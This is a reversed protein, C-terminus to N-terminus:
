GEETDEEAEAEEGKEHEKMLEAIESLDFDGGFLGGGFKGLMEPNVDGVINVFVAEDSEAALVVLGQFAEENVRIFVNVTEDDEKVRVIRSWGDDTLRKSLAEFKAAVEEAGETIPFVNVRILKINALMEGAESDDKASAGAMMKLLQGDLLVEVTPEVDGFIERAKLDVYGPHDELKEEAWSIGAVSAMMLVACVSMATKM